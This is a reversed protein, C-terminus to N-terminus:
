TGWEEQFPKSNKEVPVVLEIYLKSASLTNKYMQMYVHLYFLQEKELTTINKAFNLM